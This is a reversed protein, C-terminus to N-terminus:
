LSDITRKLDKYISEPTGQGGIQRYLGRKSYFDLVPRTNKEYVDLRVAVSEPKDDARQALKGGCKDCVDPRKAPNERVHYTAGCQGCVRRGSLRSILEDRPVDLHIAAKVPQTAKLTDLTQAQSINRPYGDLLVVDRMGLQGLEKELIKFLVDDPVLEGREMIAGAVKGIETGQKVHKRLADGTSLKRYGNRQALLDAQTGKGAGPAGTLVVIM